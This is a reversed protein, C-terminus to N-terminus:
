STGIRQVWAERYFQAVHRTGGGHVDVEGRQAVVQRANRASAGFDFTIATTL